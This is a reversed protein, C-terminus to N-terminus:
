SVPTTAAHCIPYPWCDGVRQSSRALARVIPGFFRRELTAQGAPVEIDWALQSEDCLLGLIVEQLLEDREAPILHQGGRVFVDAYVARCVCM